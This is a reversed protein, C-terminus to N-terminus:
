VFTEVFKLHNSFFINFLIMIYHLTNSFYIYETLIAYYVSVAKQAQKLTVDQATAYCRDYVILQDLYVNSKLSLKTHIGNICMGM